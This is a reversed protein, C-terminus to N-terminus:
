MGSLRRHKVSLIVSKPIIFWQVIFLVLWFHNQPLREEKEDMVFFHLNM